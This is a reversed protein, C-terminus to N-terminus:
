INLIGNVIGEECTSKGHVIEDLNKKEGEEPILPVPDEEPILPVPDEDDASGLQDYASGLDDSEPPHIKTWDIIVFLVIWKALNSM